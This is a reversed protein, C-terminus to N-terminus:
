SNIWLEKAKRKIDDICNCYHHEEPLIEKLVEPLLKDFIFQKVEENVNEWDDDWFPEIFQCLIFEDDFMKELDTRNM